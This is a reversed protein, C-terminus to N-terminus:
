RRGTRCIPLDKEAHFLHATINNNRLLYYISCITWRSPHGIFKVPTHDEAFPKFYAFAKHGDSKRWLRKAFPQGEKQEEFATGIDEGLKDFDITVQEKM